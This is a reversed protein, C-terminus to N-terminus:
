LAFFAAIQVVASLAVGLGLCNLAFDGHTKDSRAQEIWAPLTIALLLTVSLLTLPLSVSIGGDHASSQVMSMFAPHLPVVAPLLLVFAAQIKFNRDRSRWVLPMQFLVLALA